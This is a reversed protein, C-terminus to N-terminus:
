LWIFDVCINKRLLKYTKIYTYKKIQICFVPNGSMVEPLKTMVHRYVSLIFHSIPLGPDKDVDTSFESTGMQVDSLTLHFKFTLHNMEIKVAVLTHTYM